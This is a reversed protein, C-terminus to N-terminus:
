ELWPNRLVPIKAPGTGADIAAIQKLLANRTFSDLARKDQELLTQYAKRAGAGDGLRLRANGLEVGAGVHQPSLAAIEACRAAVLKWDSGGKKYIYDTIRRYMASARAKPLEQRGHWVEVEGFRAVPKMGKLAVAPDWDASPWPLRMGVDAVFWGEYIGKVNTDELSEVRRRFNFGEAIAQRRVVMFDSYVPEGSPKITSRYFANVEKFRQGLDVGENAFQTWANATGGAFENHYEWLRPERATMGLAVIWTAAAAAMWPRSRAQWAWAVAAGALIAMAVLLPLAHRVGAYTGQSSMLAALHAISMVAVALLAPRTGPEPRLRWLAILGLLSMAM